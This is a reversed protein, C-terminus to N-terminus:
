KIKKENREKDIVWFIIYLLRITTIFLIVTFSFCSVVTVTLTMIPEYPLFPILHLWWAIIVWWGIMLKVNKILWMEMIITKKVRRALKSENTKNAVWVAIYIVPLYLVYWTNKLLIIIITLLEM